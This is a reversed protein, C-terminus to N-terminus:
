SVTTLVQLTVHSQMIVHDDAGTLISLLAEYVDKNDQFMLDQSVELAAGWFRNLLVVTELVDSKLQLNLLGSFGCAYVVTLIM